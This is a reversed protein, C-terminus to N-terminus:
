THTRRLGHVLTQEAPDHTSDVIYDLHFVVVGSDVPLVRDDPHQVDVPELNELVVPKSLVGSLYM